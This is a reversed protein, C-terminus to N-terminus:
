YQNADDTNVDSYTTVNGWEVSPFDYAGACHQFRSLSPSSLTLAARLHICLPVFSLACAGASASFWGSM